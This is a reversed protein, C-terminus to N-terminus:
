LLLRLGEAEQVKEINYYLICIIIVTKLSILGGWQKVINVILEKSHKIDLQMALEEIDGLLGEIKSDIPYESSNILPNFRNRKTDEKLDDICDLVYILKGMNFGIERLLGAQPYEPNYAFMEGLIEGFAQSIEDLTTENSKELLHIRDMGERMVKEKHPYKNKVILYSRYLVKSILLSPVSKNDRYDDLM